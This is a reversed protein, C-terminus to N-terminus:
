NFTLNGFYSAEHFRVFTPSWAYSWRKMGLNEDIRYFNIKIKKATTVEKINKNALRAFPIAIELTWHNDKDNRKNPTGCVVVATRIGTLNFLATKPVHISIPNVIYSDFLVNAPSVEIEVYTEPDGDVDIFIEVADNEWLHEDRQTFSSWIDPDNCVFFFDLTSDDYCAKVHTKLVLNRYKTEM